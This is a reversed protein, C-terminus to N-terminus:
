GRPRFRTADRQLRALPTEVRDEDADPVASVRARSAPSLGFHECLRRVEAAAAQKIKLEPWAHIGRPNGDGDTVVFSLAPKAKLTQAATQYIAIQDALVALLELDQRGLVRAGADALVAMLRDWAAVGEATLWSPPQVDAPVPLAAPEGPRIRDRRLTGRAAKIASPLPLPGTRTM